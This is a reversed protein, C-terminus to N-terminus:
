RRYPKRTGRTLCLLWLALFFLLFILVYKKLPTDPNHFLTIWQAPLRYRDPPSKQAFLWSLFARSTYVQLWIDHGAQPFQTHLPHGGFARIAQIMARSASAPPDGDNAGQFAWIPLHTLRIAGSPDGGGSVPAAAAFFDPWREIADWVGYGGISIGTIYLRGPDIDPYTRQLAEVIEKALLLPRAPQQSMHYSGQASPVNVWQQSDMLQPVVIFSPWQDQVEASTWQQVYPDGVLTSRNQEPSTSSQGREGGGHLLLVLPYSRQDQEDCPIHLYYTMSQGFADTYTETM